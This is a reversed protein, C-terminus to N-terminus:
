NHSTARRDSKGMDASRIIANTNKARAKVVLVDGFDCQADVEAKTRLPVLVGAVAYSRDLETLSAGADTTPNKVDEGM